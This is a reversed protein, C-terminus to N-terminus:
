ANMFKKPVLQSNGDLTKTPLIETIVLLYTYVQQGGGVM